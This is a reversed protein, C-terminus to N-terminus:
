EAGIARKFKAIADAHQRRSCTITEFGDITASFPKKVALLNLASIRTNENIDQNIFGQAKSPMWRKVVVLDEIAQIQEDTLNAWFIVEKDALNLVGNRLNKGVEKGLVRELRDEAAARKPNVTAPAPSPVPAAASKEPEPSPSPEVPAPNTENQSLTKSIELPKPAPNEETLAPEEEPDTPLIAAAAAEDQRAKERDMIRYLTARSEEFSGLYDSWTSFGLAKWGEEHKMELLLGGMDQACAIIRAHTDQAKKVSMLLTLSM